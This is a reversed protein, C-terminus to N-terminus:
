PAAQSIQIACGGTGGSTPCLQDSLPTYYINSAGGFSSINDIIIASTGGAEPTAGTPTTSSSITGSTVDFGMVCGGGSCGAPEGFSLVGLFIYDHTGTYIETIPLTASFMGNDYNASVVPGAVPTASMANSTISIQYLTNDEPGTNGVVYLHGTPSAGNSSTLYEDDFAGSMLFQYGPGVQTEVGSSGSSFNVPFQFVGSCPVDTGCNSPSGFAGDAGVFAYVMGASSDVLPADVIGFIFDLRASKAAVAGSSAKVSYLYGCPTGATACNSTLNQLYDAVFVNGSGQDFIPAGLAAGSVSVPWPSAAEAPMLGTFVGTFKHLKGSDDGVYITDSGYDCFVSSATDNAGGSFNLTLSCPAMCSRYSSASEATPTGPSGASESASAKWKLIVLSASGGSATQAFAVQTGDLSLVVSTVITGSTNYAWYTSPVPVTCGTYLNDYTIISAQTGSGALRTNYVVFDPQTANGCNAGGIAFSFKAPAMGLGVTAGSDMDESWDTHLSNRRQRRGRDNRDHRPFQQFLSKPALSLGRPLHDRQLRVVPATVDQPAEDDADPEAEPRLVLKGPKLAANAAAARKAHQLIYRDSGAVKLWQDYTGNRLADAATGPNSFVLHHHTWDDPGQMTGFFPGQASVPAAFSFAMAVLACGAYRVFLFTMSRKM